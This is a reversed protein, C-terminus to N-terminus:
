LSIDAFQLAWQAQEGLWCRIRLRYPTEQDLSLRLEEGGLQSTERAAMVEGADDLLYLDLDGGEAHLVLSLASATAVSFRFEDLDSQGWDGDAGCRSSTGGLVWPAEITGLDQAIVDNPELELEDASPLTSVAPAMDDSSQAPCGQALISFLVFQWAFTRRARRRRSIM